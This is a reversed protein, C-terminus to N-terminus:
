SHIRASRCGAGAFAPRQNAPFAGPFLGSPIRAASACRGDSRRRRDRGAQPAYWDYERIREETRFFGANGAYVYREIKLADFDGAPVKVREWGLVKGDIRVRNTRGTAPDARVFVDEIRVRPAIFAHRVM